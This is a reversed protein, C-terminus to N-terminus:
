RRYAIPMFQVPLWNASRFLNAIVERRAISELASLAIWGLENFCGGFGQWRQHRTGSLRLELEQAPAATPITKNRGPTRRHAPSGVSCSHNRM